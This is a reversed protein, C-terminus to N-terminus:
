TGAKVGRKAIFLLLLLLLLLLKSLNCIFFICTYMCIIWLIPMKMYIYIDFGSMQRPARMYWRLCVFVCLLTYMVIYLTIYCFFDEKKLNCM